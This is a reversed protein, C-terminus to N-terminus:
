SLRLRERSSKNVRRIACSSLSPSRLFASTGERVTHSGSDHFSIAQWCATSLYTLDTRASAGQHGSLMSNIRRM